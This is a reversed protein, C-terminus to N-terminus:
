SGLQEILAVAETMDFPKVLYPRGTTIGQSTRARGLDGTMLATRGQLGPMAELQELLRLGDGPMRADVLAVDFEQEQALRLAEFADSAQTVEHGRRGLFLAIALRLTAEDDAVLVRLKRVTRAPAAVPPPPKQGPAARADARPLRVFFASGRGEESEAIIQGGHDRVITGSIALGMGRSGDEGGPQTEFLHPLRHRPIGPGNDVVSLLVGDSSERTRVILLRDGQKSALAQEANVILNLVVQQLAGVEGMVQSVSSDLDTRLEIGATDLAYRHLELVQEAMASLNVPERGGVGQQQAFSQLNKVVRAIRESEEVIIELARRHEATGAERLLLQGFSKISALPNNVEHALGAALEGVAALREARRRRVEQRLEGSRDEVSALGWAVDNYDFRRFALRLRVEGRDARTTVDAEFSFEGAAIEERYRRGQGEEELAPLVERFLDLGLLEMAGRGLREAAVPNVRLVGGATDLLLMGTPIDDLIQFVDRAGSGASM